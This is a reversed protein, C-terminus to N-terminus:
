RSSKGLMVHVIVWVPLALGIVWHVASWVPRDAEGAIYYLAYGSVTLASLIAIMSWGSALNRGSKLARRIHANLLSGVFFLMLMAAAGHIKMSWPELPHVTEGFEGPVRLWYHAVLWLIGSATLLICAAYVCRRHWREMRLNVHRKHHPPM